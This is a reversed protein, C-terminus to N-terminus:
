SHKNEHTYEVSRDAVHHGTKQVRQDGKNKQQHADSIPTGRGQIRKKSRPRVRMRVVHKGHM